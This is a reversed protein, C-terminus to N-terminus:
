HCLAEHQAQTFGNVVQEAMYAYVVSTLKVRPTMESDTGVQISLWYDTNFSLNIATVSGLQVSFKGSSTSVSSQTETWAATGGTSVSYIRFIMSYTGTLYNGSADKLIGHYTILQPVSAFVVSSLILFALFIGIGKFCNKLNLKMM